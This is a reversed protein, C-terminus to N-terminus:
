EDLYDLILGLDGLLGRDRDSPLKYEFRASIFSHLRRERVIKVGWDKGELEKEFERMDSALSSVIGRHSVECGSAPFNSYEERRDSESIRRCKNM